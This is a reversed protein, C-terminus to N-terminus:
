QAFDKELRLAEIEDALDPKRDTVIRELVRLREEIQPRATERGRDEVEAMRIQLELERERNKLKRNYAELLIGAIAIIGAMLACFAIAGAWSM